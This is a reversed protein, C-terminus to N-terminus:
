VRVGAQAEHESPRKVAMLAEPAAPLKSHSGMRPRHEEVGDNTGRQSQHSRRWDLYDKAFLLLFKPYDLLYRQLVYPDKWIRYVWRLNLRDFVPPYFNLRAATQHLFGGCTFGTGNWGLEQLQALFKEQRVAGMGVIVIDPNIDLLHRQYDRIEEESSFFGHRKAAVNLSFTQQLTEVADDIVGEETGVFAVRKGTRGALEFVDKAVSTMDFSRRAVTKLGLWSYIRCLSIGDFHVQDFHELTRPNERLKLYTYPNLFAHIEGRRFQFEARTRDNIVTIM